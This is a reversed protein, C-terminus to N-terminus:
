PTEPCLSDFSYTDIHTSMWCLARRAADPHSFHLQHGGDEILQVYGNPLHKKLRKGHNWYPTITDQAGSLVAVPIHIDTYHRSIYALSPRVVQMDLAASKFQSPMISFRYSEEFYADPVDAPNFVARYAPRSLLIGAPVLITERLLPGIVPTTFTRYESVGDGEWDHAAPSILLLGSLSESHRLSFMLSVGGGYSHGMVLPKHLNLKQIVEHLADAHNELTMKVNPDRASFGAGPRDVAYITFQEELLPALPSMTFDLHTGLNGHVYVAPVPGTGHTVVHVTGFSTDVMQGSPKRFFQFRDTYLSGCGSSCVLVLLSILITSQVGM